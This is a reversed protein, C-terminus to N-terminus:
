GFLNWLWRGMVAIGLLLAVVFVAMVVLAGAVIARDTLRASWTTNM